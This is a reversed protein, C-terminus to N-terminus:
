SNKKRKPERGNATKSCVVAKSNVLRLATIQGLDGDQETSFVKALRFRLSLFFSTCAADCKGGEGRKLKTRNRNGGM